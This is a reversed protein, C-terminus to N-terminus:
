HKLCLTFSQDGYLFRACDGDIRVLKFTQDFTAGVEVTWLKHDVTVEVRDHKQNVTQLRLVHGGISIEDTPTGNNGGGGGGGGGGGPSTTTTTSSTTTTTTTTSTTSTTTTTTPPPSYTSTTTTTTTGPITGGGGTTGTAGPTTTTSAAALGPPISFPDRAGALVVPPLTQAPTPTVTPSSPVVVGTSGTVPAAIEGTSGGGGGFVKTVLLFVVAVGAVAGLIQLMRKDRPTLTM